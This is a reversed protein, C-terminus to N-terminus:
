IKENKTQCRATANKKKMDRNQLSIRQNEDLDVGFKFFVRSWFDEYGLIQVGAAIAVRCHLSNTLSFTKSKPAYSAVSNNLAENKQTDFEHHLMTMMKHTIFPAFAQTLDHYLKRHKDKCRYYSMDNRQAIERERKKLSEVEEASFIDEGEAYNELYNTIYNSEKRELESMDEFENDLNMDELEDESEENNYGVSDDDSTDFVLKHSPDDM